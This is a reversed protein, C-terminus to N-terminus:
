KARKRLADLVASKASQPQGPPNSTREGGAVPPESDEYQKLKEQLEALQAQLFENQARIAGWSAARNRIAVHRRVVAARDEASLKPDTPNESFARDVLQFGADLAANWKEDGERKSFFKAVKEDKLVTENESAWMTSITKRMEDSVKKSSEQESKMREEGSKKADDLAQNQAEFLERITKRHSMVDDAFVGYIDDAIQRAKGLPLNVLDLLDQPTVARETGDPAAVTIEKLEGMAKTWAKEYPAQYKQKFEESKSYDVFRIHDELEKARAEAKSIRDEYSKRDNEPVIASKADAIEKEARSLKTKYEEVLKWPSVKGKTKPDVPESPPAAEGPKPEPDPKSSVAPKVPEEAPTNPEEAVKAKKRLDDFM